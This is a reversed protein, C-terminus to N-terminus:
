PPRLRRRSRPPSASRCSQPASCSLLVRCLQVAWDVLGAIGRDGGGTRAPPPRLRDAGGRLGSLHVVARQSASRCATRSRDARGRPCQRRDHAGAPGLATPSATSGSGRDLHADAPAGGSAGRGSRPALAMAAVRCAWAVGCWRYLCLQRRHAVCAVARAPRRHRLRPLFRSRRGSRGILWSINGRCIAARTRDRHFPVGPGVDATIWRVLRRRGRGM